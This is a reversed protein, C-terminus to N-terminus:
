REAHGRALGRLREVEKRIEPARIAPGRNLEDIRDAVELVEQALTASPTKPPRAASAPARQIKRLIPALATTLLLAVVLVGFFEAAADDPDEIVDAIALVAILADIGGLAVSATTMGSVLPSDSARRGGVMLCAHSSALAAVATAGVARWLTESDTDGWLAVLFLAFSLTAVAVTATGLQEELGISRLRLSAGAAAVASYLSFGLSSAIVRGDTDDFSGSLLAISASLAAVSLGGVLAWGLARRVQAPDRPLM